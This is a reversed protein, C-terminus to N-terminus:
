RKKRRRPMPVYEPCELVQWWNEYLTSPVARWGAVPRGYAWACTCVSCRACISMTKSVFPRGPGRPKPEKWNEEGM